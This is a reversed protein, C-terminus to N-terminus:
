FSSAPPCSLSRPFNSAPPATRTSMARGRSRTPYCEVSDCEDTLGESASCYDSGEAIPVAVVAVFGAKTTQSKTLKVVSLEQEVGDKVLSCSAVRGSQRGRSIVYVDNFPNADIVVNATQFNCHYLTGNVFPLDKFLHDSVQISNGSLDVSQFMVPAECEETDSRQTAASSTTSDLECVEDKENKRLKRAHFHFRGCEGDCGKKTGFKMCRLSKNRWVEGVLSRWQEHCVRCRLTVVKRLVRVNDWSNHSCPIQIENGNVTITFGTM